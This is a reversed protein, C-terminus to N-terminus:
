GVTDFGKDILQKVDFLNKDELKKLSLGTPNPKEYSDTSINGEFIKTAPAFVGIHSGHEEFHTIFCKTTDDISYISFSKWKEDESPDYFYFCLVGYKSEPIDEIYEPFNTNSRRLTESYWRLNNLRDLEKPTLDTKGGYETFTTYYNEYTLRNEDLLLKVGELHIYIQGAAGRGNLSLTLKKPFVANIDWGYYDYIEKKDSENLVYNIYLKKPKVYYTRQNDGPWYKLEYKIPEQPIEYRGKVFSFDTLDAGIAKYYATDEFPECNYTEYIETPKKVLEAKEWEYQPRNYPYHSLKSKM